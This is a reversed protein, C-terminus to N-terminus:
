NSMAEVVIDQEVPKARSVARVKWEGAALQWFFRGDRSPAVPV